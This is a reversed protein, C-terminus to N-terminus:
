ENLLKNLYQNCAEADDPDPAWDAWTNSDPTFPGKLIEHFVIDSIPVLMHYQNKELRYCITNGKSASVEFMQEVNGEEDFIVVKMEGEILHHTESKECHKHPRSYEGAMQAVIMEHLSSEVSPHLCIRARRKPSAAARQKLWEIEKSGIIKVKVDPYYFVEPTQEIFQM